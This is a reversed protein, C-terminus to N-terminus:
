ASASVAYNNPLLAGFSEKIMLQFSMDDNLRDFFREREQVAAPDESCLRLYNGQSMPNVMNTWIERREHLAKTILEDNEGDRICRM